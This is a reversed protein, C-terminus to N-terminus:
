VHGNKNSDYKNENFVTGPNKLDFGLLINLKSKKLSFHKYIIYDM